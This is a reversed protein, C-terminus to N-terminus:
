QQKTLGQGPTYTYTPAVPAPQQGGQAGEPLYSSAQQILSQLTQQYLPDNPDPPVAGSAILPQMARTAVAVPNERSIFRTFYLSAGKAPDGNGMAYFLKQLDGPKTAQIQAIQMANQLAAQKAQYEMNLKAYDMSIGYMAMRRQMESNYGESLAGGLAQAFRPNQSSALALGTRILFNQLNFDTPDHSRNAAGAGMGGGASVPPQGSNARASIDNAQQRLAVEDPTLSAIGGHPGGWGAPSNPGPHGAPRVMPTPPAAVDPNNQSPPPPPPLAAQTAESTPPAMLLSNLFAATPDYANVNQAPGKGMTGVYPGPPQDQTPPSSVPAQGMMALLELMPDASAGYQNGGFKAGGFENGGFINGGFKMGGYPTNEPKIQPLPTVPQDFQYPDESGPPVPVLDAIGGGAAFYSTPNRMPSEPTYKAMNAATGGEEAMRTRRALEALILAAPLTNTPDQLLGTLQQNSAGAIQGYAGAPPMYSM